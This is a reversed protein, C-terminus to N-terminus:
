LLVKDPDLLAKLSAVTFQMSLHTLGVYLPISLTSAFFREAGPLPQYRGLKQYYPHSYIPLYHVQVGVGKGRLAKFIEDRRDAPVAVQYLHWSSESSLSDPKPLKLGPTDCLMERYDAAMERREKLFDDLREMQSIGLAAQVDSMRYNFGLFQQEYYYDPRGREYMELPDRTIGHASYQKLAHGLRPDNTLCMGGEATTIIKVPHFSLVTIDSVSCCGVRENEFTAGLAHAADEILYFGYEQKLKKLAALDVCRGSLHVAVVAKPLRGQERAKKLMGELVEMDMNGSDGDVDVFEVQAGVYLACNASAAFSIASVYVLDGPGVGLALMSLHLAATGSSVAVAYKAGTYNELAAEFEPVKPGTTLYDSRLVECVADIDEESINQHAYPIM